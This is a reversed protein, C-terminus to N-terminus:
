VSSKTEDILRVSQSVGSDHRHHHHRHHHKSCCDCRTRDKVLRRVLHYAAVAIPQGGPLLNVNNRKHNQSLEHSQSQSQSRGWGQGQFQREEEELRRWFAPSEQAYNINDAWQEDYPDLLQDRRHMLQLLSDAFQGNDVDGNRNLRGRRSEIKPSKAATAKDQFVPWARIQHLVSKCKEKSERLFPISPM